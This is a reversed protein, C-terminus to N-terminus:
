FHFYSKGKEERRHIGTDWPELVGSGDAIRKMLGQQLTRKLSELYGTGLAIYIRYSCLAFAAL